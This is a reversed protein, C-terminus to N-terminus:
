GAGRERNQRDNTDGETEIGPRFVGIMERCAFEATVYGGQVTLQESAITGATMQELVYRRAAEAMQDEGDPRSISQTECLRYTETVLAVPLQFGGPLTLYNVTRM